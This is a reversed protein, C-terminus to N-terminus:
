SLWHDTCDCGISTASRHSKRMDRSCTRQCRSAIGSKADPEAAEVAVVIFVTTVSPDSANV